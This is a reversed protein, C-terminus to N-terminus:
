GAKLFDHPVSLLLKGSGPSVYESDSFDVCHLSGTGIHLNIEEHDSILYRIFGAIQPEHGAYLISKTKLSKLYGLLHKFDRNNPTILDLEMYEPHHKLEARVLEMTQRARLFPSSLLYEVDGINQAISKATEKIAKKGHKSLPRLHDDQHFDSNPIAEGHRLLYIKM